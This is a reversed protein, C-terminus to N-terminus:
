AHSDVLRRRRPRRPMLLRPPPFAMFRAPSQCTGIQGQTQVVWLARDRLCHVRRSGWRDMWLCKAFLAHRPTMPTQGHRSVGRTHPRMSHPPQVLSPVSGLATSPWRPTRRPERGSAITSRQGPTYAQARRRVSLTSFQANGPTANSASRRELRQSTPRSEHQERVETARRWLRPGGGFHTRSAESDAIGHVKGCDQGGEQATGSWSGKAAM